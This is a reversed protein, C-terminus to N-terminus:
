VKYKKRAEEDSIHVLCPPGGGHYDDHPYTLEWYRGDNNDRYLIDWGDDSEAVKSLDNTLLKEIRLCTADSEVNGNVVNWKGVLKNEHSKLTTM